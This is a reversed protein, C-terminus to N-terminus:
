VGRAGRTCTITSPWCRRVMFNLVEYPVDIALGLLAVLMIIKGKPTDFHDREARQSFFRDSCWGM